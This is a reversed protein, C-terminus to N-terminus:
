DAVSRISCAFGRNEGDNMGINYDCLYVGYSCESCSKTSTWYNGQLDVLNLMGDDSSRCGAAPLFISNGNAKDTFKCGIVSNQTTWENSVKDDDFLARFEADTAVHWGAPSPDNSKLWIDDYYISNDWDTVEDGTTAWAKKNNWKYFMGADEPTSAFKGTATVNRTAWKVGNIVVGEDVTLPDISLKTEITEAPKNSFGENNSYETGTKINFKTSSTEEFRRSGAKQECSTAIIMMSATVALFIIKKMAEVRDVSNGKGKTQIELTIM